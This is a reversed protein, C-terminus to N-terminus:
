IQASACYPDRATLLCSLSSFSCGAGDPKVAYHRVDEAYFPKISWNGGDSRNQRREPDLLPQQTLDKLVIGVLKQATFVSFSDEEGEDEPLQQVYQRM